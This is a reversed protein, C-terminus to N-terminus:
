QPPLGALNPEEATQSILLVPVAASVVEPDFVSGSGRVLIDVALGTDRADRFPRQSTLADFTDCVAIIRSGVPIEYGTLGQPYGSGDFAEGHCSAIAAVEELGSVDALFEQTRGTHRRVEALEDPTLLRPENLLSKPVSIAGLDHLLAAWKVKVIDEPPLGVAMAVLIALNAVRRSHGIKDLPHTDIVNAFLELLGTVESDTTAFDDACLRSIKSQVLFQVEAATLLQTYFGPEGLVEIGADVVIPSVQAATRKRVAEIFAVWEASDQERLVYDCTDAFRLIQAGVGIESGGKGRPYGHGNTWEHHDLIIEAIGYLGPVTAVMQAGTLPHSRMLPSNAQAALNAPHTFDPQDDLLGIDHVLGAYFTNRRDSSRLRSAMQAALAAVRGHHPMQPTPRYDLVKALAALVEGRCLRVDVGSLGHSSTPLSEM